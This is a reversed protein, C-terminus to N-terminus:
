RWKFYKWAHRLPIGRAYKGEVDQQLAAWGDEASPFRAFGAHDRVAGAQGVYKLSGPNNLRQPLSGAHYFGEHRAIIEAYAPEVPCPATTLLFTLLALTDILSM